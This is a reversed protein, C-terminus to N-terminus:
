RGEKIPGAGAPTAVGDVHVGDHDADSRLPTGRIAERVEYGLGNLLGLVESISTGQDRLLNESLELFVTPRDEQLISTAGRLVGGEFGETDIKMVHIPRVEEVAQLRDLSELRVPTGSDSDTVRFGGPNRKIPEVMNAAGAVSDLGLNFPTVHLHPNLELNGKLTAFNAPHPEFAIVKGETGVRVAALLATFGINAGVDVVTMGSRLLGFLTDLGPDRVGFRIAWGLLTSIDARFTVGEPTTILRVSPQPYQYHNPLFRSRFSGLRTSGFLAFAVGELGPLMWFRRLVNLVRTRTGHSGTTSM